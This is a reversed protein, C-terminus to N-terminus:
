PSNHQEQPHSESTESIHNLARWLHFWIGDIWRLQEIIRQAQDLSLAGSATLKLVVLRQSKRKGALWSSFEQIEVLPNHSLPDNLWSLVKEIKQPLQSRISVLEPDAENPEVKDLEDIAELASSLHDIAHLVSIFRNYDLTQESVHPVKSLFEKTKSISAELAERRKIVASPRLEQNQNAYVVHILEKFIEIITLRAAEVAVAPIAIVSDDLNRTLTPQEDKILREIIHVIHSIFPSLIVIGLLNFGTHFAALLIAPEDTQAVEAFLLVGKTFIPLMTFALIGTVLNFFIHGAATRKAPITAGISAFVATVTTGVNQGIVLIAAQELSISGVHLATMTAAVAVSSSQLVVTMAIGILLLLIRGLFTDSPFSDPDFLDSLNELGNQLFDIGIFILGFGATMLGFHQWKGKFFLKLFTGIGIMPMALSTISYKLGLISVLWGTSTTGLNAGFIVALAQQFTLLGASVFGITTLSTASSSQIITTLIAGSAIGKFSGGTFKSLMKRLSDGGVAKLGDTMLTMGLLFMGLGGLLITIMFLM